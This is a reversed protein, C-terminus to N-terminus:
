GLARDAIVRAADRALTLAQRAWADDAGALGSTPTVVVQHLTRDPLGLRHWLDLLPQAVDHFDFLLSGAQRSDRQGSNHQGFDRDRARADRADSTEARSRADGEGAPAGITVDESPPKPERTPVLGALLVTGAEVAEGIQDLRTAPLTMGATLDLSIADFGASRLMAMPIEPHCCHVISPRADFSGVLAALLEEAAATSVAPIEGFGSATSLSGRLVAPLEPEDIQIVFKTGPLRKALDAVQEAIGEALSAAIDRVAGADTIARNGTPTEVNAALTWPGAFQVKVWAAGAYHQEAADLDWNLYDSARRSDLGPRRALRWGFPTVEGPMEVCIALARGLMDAGPGRDPLEVLHPLDALEGAILAAAEVPEVGPMSGIGTFLGARWPVDNMKSNSKESSSKAGANMGSDSMEVALLRSKEPRSCWPTPTTM